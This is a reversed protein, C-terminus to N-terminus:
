IEAHDLMGNLAKGWKVVIRQLDQDCSFVEEDFLLETDKESDTQDFKQFIDLDSLDM